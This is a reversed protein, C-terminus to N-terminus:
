YQLVEMFPTVLSNWEAATQCTNDSVECASVKDRYIVLNAFCDHENIDCLMKQLLHERPGSKRDYRTSTWILIFCKNLKSNYHNTYDSLSIVSNNVEDSGSSKTRNFEKFFVRANRSCRDQVEYADKDSTAQSNGFLPFIICISLLIISLKATTM